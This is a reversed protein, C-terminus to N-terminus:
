SNAARQVAEFFARMKIRCKRGPTAEIGSCVDVMYPKVQQIALAVNEATLGGALITRRRKSMEQAITWSAVRGTGGFQKDSPADILIRTQESYFMMEELESLHRPRCARIVPSSLQEYFSFPENGHLQITHLDVEQQIAKVMTLSSNVFVGVTEIDKPLARRIVAAHLPVVYRASKSYFNFGLAHAGMDCALYADELTTVGCIKVQM